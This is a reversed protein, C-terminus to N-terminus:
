AYDRLMQKLRDRAYRLRSKATEFGTGTATAIEEVSLGGEAQLLFAERQEAPLHALAALIAEGQELREASEAPTPTQEDRLSHMAPEGNEGVAADLSVQPKTARLRDILRHRAIAYLWTAFRADARFRPAERAVALWTEQHLEEATARQRCQRLLFRWVPLEHRAYLQDFAAVDGTAYRTILAEDSAVDPGRLGDGPSRMRPMIVSAAAM